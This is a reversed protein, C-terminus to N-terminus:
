QKPIMEDVRVFGYGRDRLEVLLPELLRWVKDERQAGLHLLLLFGNLGHPDEREYRLIDDVITRAPVFIKHGEPAWDRNSGSGPTFNFLTVDMRAAWRVQNRNFWEYPPIFYVPEGPRLAGYARLDEINRRLDERFFEETVLTRERNEWPCYLPHSDSHPGLYHGEAVMRRLDDQHEQRRIYEGTVFFSAKIDLRQLVDLIHGAGEGYDGGTFILAILKRSTDGRVAAGHDLTISRHPSDGGPERSVGRGERSAGGGCGAVLLAGLTGWIVTRWREIM